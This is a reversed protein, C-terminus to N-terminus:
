QQLHRIYSRHQSTKFLCGSVCCKIKDELPKLLHFELLDRTEKEFTILSEDNTYDKRLYEILTLQLRYKLVAFPEEDDFNVKFTILNHILNVRDMHNKRVSELLTAIREM